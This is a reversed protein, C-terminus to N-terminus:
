ASEAYRKEEVEFLYHSEVTRLFRRISTMKTGTYGAILKLYLESSCRDQFDANTGKRLNGTSRLYQTFGEDEDGLILSLVLYKSKFPKYKRRLAKLSLKAELNSAVNSTELNINEYSSTGGDELQKPRFQNESVVILDYNSGGFGDIGANIMRGRKQSTNTKIVNKAHNSVSRRIFNVIYADSEMTPVLRYYSLLAKIMLESHLDSLGINTSSSIFRLKTYTIQKVTTMIQKYVVDSFKLHWHTIQQPNVIEKSLEAIKEHKRLTPFEKRLAKYCAGADKPKVKAYQGAEKYFDVKSAYKSSVRRTKIIHYLYLKLNLTYSGMDLVLLRFKKASVEGSTLDVIDKLQHQFDFAGIVGVLYKCTLNLVHYFTESDKEVPLTKYILYSLSRM